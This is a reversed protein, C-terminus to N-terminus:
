EATTTLALMKEKHRYGRWALACLAAATFLACLRAFWDGHRAHFTPAPTAIPILYNGFGEGYQGGQANRVPAEIAGDPRILCTDSNNGSRLLYMRNEVARMVAHALHQRAESSDPYWCDNTLTMLFNAGKLAFQRAIDPFVDEFCIATGFRAEGAYRGSCQFITFYQGATMDRGMGIIGPLWPFYRSFPVYEGFPVLHVKDYHNRRQGAAWRSLQMDDGSLLFVSNFVEYQAEGSLSGVASPRVDMAGTLLPTGRMQGLLQRLNRFYPEYTIACPLAGEPWVVLDAPFEAANRSDLAQMTLTAYRQWSRNFIDDNWQRSEPLDGQIAAVNLFHRAASESLPAPALCFGLTFAAAVAAATAPPMLHPRRWGALGCGIAANALVILFGLGYPGSFSLIQRTYPQFAQSTAIINWPFGTFLWSRLWELACWAAAAFLMFLLQQWRHPLTIFGADPLWPAPDPPLGGCHEDAPKFAWAAAAMLWYWAMPFLACYAALMWGAGFGVANLWHLATAFHTYGFLFGTSLRQWNAKPFPLALLPVMAIFAAFAWELPSFAASLLLGGCVAAATRLAPLSNLLRCDVIGQLPPLM